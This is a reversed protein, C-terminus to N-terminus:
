SEAVLPEIGLNGCHFRIAEQVHVDWYEWTHAGPFEQYEHAFGLKDLHAHFLRNDEILFDDVGCDIRLKPRKGPALGEALGYLDNPGGIPSPGLIRRFEPAMDSDLYEKKHGFGLAGSHSHASVFLEPFRLGLKAAGYGGMSLGAVCWAEKTPFYQRILGPLEVGIATEYAYGEAADCYFGRGGDPMVEMLPLDGLYREISTHRTWISADDSLGHLLFMVHYPPALAPRPLLVIAESHKKLADSFYRLSCVPM